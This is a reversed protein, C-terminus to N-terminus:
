FNGQSWNKLKGITKKLKRKEEGIKKTISQRDSL